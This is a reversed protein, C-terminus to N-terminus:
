ASGLQMGIGAALIIASQHAAKKIKERAKETLKCDEQIYGQDILKHLSKNVVGLSYGTTEALIRQNVISDQMIANLIDAEQKNM